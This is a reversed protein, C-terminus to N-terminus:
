KNNFKRQKVCKVVDPIIVILKSLTDGVVYGFCVALLITESMTM